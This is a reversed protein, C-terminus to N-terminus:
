QPAEFESARWWKHLNILYIITIQRISWPGGCPCTNSVLKQGDIKYIFSMILPGISWRNFIDLCRNIMQDNLSLPNIMIIGIYCLKSWKEASFSVNNTVISFPCAIIDINTPLETSVDWAILQIRSGQTKFVLAVRRSFRSCCYARLYSM